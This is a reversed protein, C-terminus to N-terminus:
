HSFIDVNAWGNLDLMARAPLFNMSAVALDMRGERVLMTNLKERLNHLHRVDTAAYEAQAETLEPSGWDSSQQQKSVDESLLERCIEKYGHRDTYTRALKSAIKTCYIPQVLINLYARLIAVDFRAFHFLKVRNPDSLLAKLNPADYQGREFTVLHEDGKGDSLQVVCLRDRSNLLGMAETDVAIDGDFQVDAPIDGKYVHVAM